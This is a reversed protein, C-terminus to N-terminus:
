HCIGSIRRFSCVSRALAIVEAAESRESLELYYHGRSVSARVVEGSVWESEAFTRAIRTAVGNLLRSM